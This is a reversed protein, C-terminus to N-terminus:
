NATRCSAGRDVTWRRGMLHLTRQAKVEAQTPHLRREFARTEASSHNSLFSTPDPQGHAWVSNWYIMLIDM